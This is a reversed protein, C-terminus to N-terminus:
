SDNIIAEKFITHGTESIKLSKEKYKSKLLKIINEKYKDYKLIYYKKFQHSRNKWPDQSRLNKRRHRKTGWRIRSCKANEINGEVVRM